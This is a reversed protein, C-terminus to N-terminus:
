SMRDFPPTGCLSSYDRCWFDGTTWRGHEAARLLLRLAATARGSSCSTLCAHNDTGAV